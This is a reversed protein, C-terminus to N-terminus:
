YGDRAQLRTHGDDCGRFSRVTVVRLSGEVFSGRLKALSYSRMRVDAEFDIHLRPYLM